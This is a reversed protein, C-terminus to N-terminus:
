KLDNMVTQLATSFAGDSRSIDAGCDWLVPVMGRSMAAKAVSAMWSVRSAPQRVVKQGIAVAFEGIIVPIKKKTSFNGATTFLDNLAKKEADTGWTGTPSGWSAADEMLGAFVVVPHRLRGVVAHGSRLRSWSLVEEHPPEEKALYTYRGM